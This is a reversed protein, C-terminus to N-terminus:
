KECLHAVIMFSKMRKLIFLIEQRQWKWIISMPLGAKPTNISKDSHKIQIVTKIKLFKLCSSFKDIQPLVHLFTM